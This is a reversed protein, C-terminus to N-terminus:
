LCRPRAAAYTVSERQPAQGRLQEAAVALQLLAAELGRLREAAALVKSAAGSTTGTMLHSTTHLSWMGKVRGTYIYIYIYIHM